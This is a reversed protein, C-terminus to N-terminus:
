ASAIHLEVNSFATTNTAGTAAATFKLAQIINGTEDGDDIKGATTGTYALANDAVTNSTEVRAFNGATQIWFYTYTAAADIATPASSTQAPVGFANPLADTLATTAGGGVLWDEDIIYLLGITKAAAARVLRYVDGNAFVARTGLKFEPAPTKDTWEQTVKVGALGDIGSISSATM